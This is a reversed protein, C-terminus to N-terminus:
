FGRSERIGDRWAESSIVQAPKQTTNHRPLDRVKLGSRDPDEHKSYFAELKASLDRVVSSCDDIDILNTTESPDARLDFLEDPGNPYRRVLKHTQNHATRLDGYEGFRTDDWDTSDSRILPLYSQGPYDVDARLSGRDVHCWECITQFTDYHDVSRDIRKAQPIGPGSVFLPIHISLDYMNLPRTGNGKGWFGNQGLSLGHDSTYIIITNDLRGSSELEALIRDIHQDINAVAAYQNAHRLRIDDESISADEAFGENWSNPHPEDVSIDAFTCGSFREVLEPNQGVYPSHTDTYGIHLFFPQDAPCQQLFGIAEDTVFETINGTRVDHQHDKIFTSEGEHGGRAIGFYWDYGRPSTEDRGLHWKGALGCRYGDRSLIESLTLQGRTWDRDHCEPDHKSIWDHVGHQSPTLGTLLCARAPSCVPSPTFAQNFVVGRKALRDFAPAESESNGYCPLTWPAHDDTIFLLINPRDPVSGILDLRSRHRCTHRVDSADM